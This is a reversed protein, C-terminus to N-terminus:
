MVRQYERYYRLVREVYQRTEPYPPIIGGYRMVTSPGANYAALSIELNNNFQRLLDALFRAGGQVNTEPDTMDTVGYHRATEPMLQMLGVAGKASIAYPDFNSEARIISQLLARNIGTQRAAAQVIAAYPHDEQGSLPGVFAPYLSSSGSAVRNPLRAASPAEAWYVVSGKQSTPNKKAIYRNTAIVPQYRRDNPRDTLHLVGQEDVFSYIGKALVPEPSLLLTSLLLGSALSWLTM